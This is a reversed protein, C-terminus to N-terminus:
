AAAGEEIMDILTKAEIPKRMFGSAGSSMARERWSAELRGTILIVKPADEMAVVRRALDIGSLGPMHIDAVVCSCDGREASGLFSEADDFCAVRYNSARLLDDLSVRVDADDDVICILAQSDMAAAHAREVCGGVREHGLM